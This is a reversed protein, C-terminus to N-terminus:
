SLAIHYHGDTGGGIALVSRVSFSCAGEGKTFVCFENEADWALIIEGKVAVCHYYQRNGQKDRKEKHVSVCVQAKNSVLELLTKLLATRATSMKFPTTLKEM